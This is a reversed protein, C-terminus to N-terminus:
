FLILSLIDMIFFFSVQLQLLLMQTCRLGWLTHTFLHFIRLRGNGTDLTGQAEGSFSAPRLELCLPRSITSKVLTTKESKPLWPKSPEWLNETIRPFFFPGLPKLDKYLPVLLSVIPICLLIFALVKGRHCVSHLINATILVFCSWLHYFHLQQLCLGAEPTHRRGLDM